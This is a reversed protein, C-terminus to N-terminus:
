SFDDPEEIQEKIKQLDDKVKSRRSIKNIKHKRPGSIMVILLIILVFTLLFSIGMMVLLVNMIKM